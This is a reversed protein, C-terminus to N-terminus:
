PPSVTLLALLYNLPRQANIAVRSAACTVTVLTPIVAVGRRIPKLLQRLRLDSAETIPNTALSKTPSAAEVAPGRSQPRELFGGQSVLLGRIQALRKMLLVVLLGFREDPSGVGVLNDGSDPAPM